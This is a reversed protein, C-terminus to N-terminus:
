RERRSRRGTKKKKKKSDKDKDREPAAEDADDAADGPETAPDPETAEGFPNGLKQYITRRGESQIRVPDARRFADEVESPDLFGDKDRDWRDMPEDPFAVEAYEDPSVRRDRDLDVRSVIAMTVKPYVLGENPDRTQCAGLALVFAVASMGSM